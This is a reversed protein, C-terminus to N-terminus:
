KASNPVYLDVEFDSYETKLNIASQPAQFFSLSEMNKCSQSKLKKKLMNIISILDSFLELYERNVM